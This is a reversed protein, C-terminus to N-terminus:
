RPAIKTMFIGHMAELMKVANDYYLSENFEVSRTTETSRTTTVETGAASTETTKTREGTQAVGVVFPNQQPVISQKLWLRAGPGMKGVILIFATIVVELRRFGRSQLALIGFAAVSTILAAPFLDIGFLLNLAIASGIM